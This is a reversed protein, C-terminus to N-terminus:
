WSGANWVRFGRAYWYWRCAVETEGAVTYLCNRGDELVWGTGAGVLAGFSRIM